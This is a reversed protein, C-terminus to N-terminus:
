AVRVKKFTEELTRNQHAENDEELNPAMLLRAYEYHRKSALPMYQSNARLLDKGNDETVDRNGNIGNFWNKRTIREFQLKNNGRMETSDPYRIIRLMKPNIGYPNGSRKPTPKLEELKMIQYKPGKFISTEEDIDHTKLQPRITLELSLQKRIENMLQKFNM